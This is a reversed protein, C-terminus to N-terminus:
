LEIDGMANSLAEKFCPEFAEMYANVFAISDEPSLGKVANNAEEELDNMCKDVNEAKMCECSKEALKKAKSELSAGCAAMMAVLAFASVTLLVKKM